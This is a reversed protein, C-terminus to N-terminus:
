SIHADEFHFFYIRKCCLINELLTIQIVVFNVHVHCLVSSTCVIVEYIMTRPMLQLKLFNINM